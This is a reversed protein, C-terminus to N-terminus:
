FKTIRDKKVVVKFYEYEDAKKIGIVVLYFTIFLADRYNLGLIHM